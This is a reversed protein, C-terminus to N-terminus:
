TPIQPETPCASSLVAGANGRERTGPNGPERTGANGRERTVANGREQTEPNGPIGPNGPTRAGPKWDSVAFVLGFILLDLNDSNFLEFM